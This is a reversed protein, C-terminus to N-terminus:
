EYPGLPASDPEVLGGSWPAPCLLLEGHKDCAHFVVVDVKVLM